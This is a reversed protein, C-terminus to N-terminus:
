ATARAARREPLDGVVAAVERGAVVDREAADAVRAEHEQLQEVREALGLQAADRPRPRLDGRHAGGERLAPQRVEGRVGGREAGVADDPLQHLDGVAGAGDHRVVRPMRAILDHREVLRDDRAAIEAPALRRLEARAEPQRHACPERLGVPERDVDHAVGREAHDAHVELRGHAAPERDERDHEVVPEHAAVGLPHGIGDRAVARIAHAPAVGVDRGREAPVGLPDIARGVQAGRELAADGGDAGPLGRQALDCGM